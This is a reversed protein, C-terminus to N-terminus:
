DVRELDNISTAIPVGGVDITFNRAKGDHLDDHGGTTLILQYGDEIDITTVICSCSINTFCGGYTILGFLFRMVVINAVSAIRLLGLM